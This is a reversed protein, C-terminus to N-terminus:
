PLTPPLMGSAATPLRSRFAGRQPEVSASPTVPKSTTTGSSQTDIEEPRATKVTPSPASPARPPPAPRLLGSAAGVATKEAGQVTPVGQLTTPRAQEGVTATKTMDSLAAVEEPVVAAPAAPLKQMERATAERQQQAEPTPAVGIDQQNWAATTTVPTFGERKETAAATLGGLTEGIPKRYREEGLRTRRVVQSSELVIPRNFTPSGPTRDVGRISGMPDGYMRGREEILVKKTKAEIGTAEVDGEVPELQVDKVLAQAGAEPLRVWNAGEDESAAYTGDSLQGVFVAREKGDVTRTRSGMSVLKPPAGGSVEIETMGRRTRDGALGLNYLINKQPDMQMQRYALRIARMDDPSQTYLLGNVLTGQPYYGAKIDAELKSGPPVPVAKGLNFGHQKAWEQVDERRVWGALMAQESEEPAAAQEGSVGLMGLYEEARAKREKISADIDSFFAPNKEPDKMYERLLNVGPANPQPLANLLDKHRAEFQAYTSNDDPKMEPNQALFNEWTTAIREVSNMQAEFMAANQRATELGADIRNKAQLIPGTLIAAPPEGYKERMALDTGLRNGDDARASSYYLEWARAAVQPDRSSEGARLPGLGAQIQDLLAYNPQYAASAFKIPLESQMRKFAVAADIRARTAGSNLAREYGAVAESIKSGRKAREGQLAGVSREVVGLAGGLADLRERDLAGASRLLIEQEYDRPTTSASVKPLAM